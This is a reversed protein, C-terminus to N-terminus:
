KMEEKEGAEKVMKKFWDLKRLPDLDKDKLEEIEDASFPGLPMRKEFWQRAGEIDGQCGLLYAINFTTYLHRPNLQLAKKYKEMAQNFLQEAEKGSKTKGLGSLAVGWNNLADPHDPKIELTTKYKDIAQNFFQEAEKGSKTKALNSLAVGWNILASRHDPKIELAAKYKDIAQNYFQETEKGSKTEALNLLANGWNILADPHDPKIELAAKYKDTAQNFLTEAEEGTQNKGTRLLANGQKIYAWYLDSSLQPDNKLDNKEMFRTAAEYDGAMILRRAESVAAEKQDSEAREMARRIQDRATRTVDEGSSDEKFTFPQIGDFLKNLHHFPKNIFEPPFVGLEQTLKVFFSDADYGKTYFASKGNDLLHDRLNASPESDDHGIWFLGNRFEEIKRLHNFVPDSEGSYGVVIWLRNQRTEEFVPGLRKAHAETKDPTHLLVFGTHQGHLHYIAKEAVRGPDFKESAAFDYVAPFEGLLACARSVLPDFNTTLVRDVYNEKMLIAICIHAWNIKAKKISELILDDREDPLLEGMCHPYNKQEARDYADSYNDKIQKVIEAATPIGASASCGAGILLCCSKGRSKASKVAQVVDKIERLHSASM